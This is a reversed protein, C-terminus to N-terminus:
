FFYISNNIKICKINIAKVEPDDAFNVITQVTTEYEETFNDPYTALVVVDEGYKAQLAEAGRRDDESQSVTGTVIAIKFKDEGGGDTTPETTATGGGSNGCATLALVMLLSLLLTIFKKM